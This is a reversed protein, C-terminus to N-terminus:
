EEFIIRGNEDGVFEAIRSPIAIRLLDAVAALIVVISEIYFGGLRCEVM